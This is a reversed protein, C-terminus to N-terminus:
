QHNRNRRGKTERIRCTHGVGAVVTFLIQTDRIGTEGSAGFAGIPIFCVLLIGVQHDLLITGGHCVGGNKLSRGFTQGLTKVKTESENVEVLVLTLLFQVAQLGDAFVGVPLEGLVLFDGM